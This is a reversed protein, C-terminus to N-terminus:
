LLTTCLGTEQQNEVFSNKKSIYGVKIQSLMNPGVHSGGAPKAYPAM